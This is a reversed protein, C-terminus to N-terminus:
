KKGRVKLCRKCTVKRWLKTCCHTDWISKVPVGCLHTNWGYSHKHVKYNAPLDFEKM